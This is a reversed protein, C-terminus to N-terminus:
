ILFSDEKIGHIVAREKQSTYKNKPEMNDHVHCLCQVLVHIHILITLWRLSYTITVTQQWDVLSQLLSMATLHLAAGHQVM